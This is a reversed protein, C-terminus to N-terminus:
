PKIRARWIANAAKCSLPPDVALGEGAAARVDTDRGAVGFTADGLGTGLMVLLSGMM